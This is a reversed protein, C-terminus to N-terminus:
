LGVKVTFLDLLDNKSIDIDEAMKPITAIINVGTLTEIQLKNDVHMFNMKDYNNLIIGLIKIGYLKAYEVTLLVSNITGLGGDAVIVVGLELSKIVDPLLIEKNSLNFPCTIGGAGEVCMFDYNASLREFDAKIVNLDIEIGCRAAALHPSVPEEFCYTVCNLPDIDLGATKLVFDCDGPLMNGDSTKVAGSLAPKYYGCDFGLERMKKVLLASVYTKGVDTGTATIFISNCTM